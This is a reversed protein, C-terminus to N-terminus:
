QLHPERSAERSNIRMGPPCARSSQEELFRRYKHTFHGSIVKLQHSDMPMQLIFHSIKLISGTMGTLSCTESVGTHALRHTHTRVHAGERRHTCLHPSLIRHSHSLFYGKHARGCPVVTWLGSLPPSDLGADM